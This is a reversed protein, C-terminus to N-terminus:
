GHAAGQPQALGVGALALQAPPTNTRPRLWAAIARKGAESPPMSTAPKGGAHCLRCALRGAVFHAETWDIDGCFCCPERTATM